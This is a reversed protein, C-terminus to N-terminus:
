QGQQHFFVALAEIDEDTLRKAISLMAENEQADERYSTLVTIFTKVPWGTISPIGDAKGSLQHCATCEGSLYEGYEYREDAVAPPPLFGGACLGALIATATRIRRSNM